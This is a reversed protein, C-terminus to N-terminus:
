DVDMVVYPVPVLIIDFEVRRDFRGVNFLQYTRETGEQGGLRWSMDGPLADHARGQRRLCSRVLQRASKLSFHFCKITVDGEM